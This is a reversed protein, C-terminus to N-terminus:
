QASEELEILQDLIALKTLLSLCSSYYGEARNLSAMQTMELLRQRRTSQSFLIVSQMGPSVFFESDPINPVLSVQAPIKGLQQFSGWFDTVPTLLSNRRNWWAINLPVRIADFGFYPPFDPALSVGGDGVLVWDAPLGAHSFRAEEFLRVSDRLLRAWPSNLRKDVRAFDEFAPFVYYSLNVVVGYDHVFGSEGPLLVLGYPTNILCKQELDSLIDAAKRAYEPEEWLRTARLLAWAILIDGDSANNLDNVEGGLPTPTWRWAFLHDERVQLNQESWHLLREFTERDQYAVALLMGYGMSESHTIDGNDRDVIRGRESMFQSLFVVWDRPPLRVIKGLNEYELMSPPLPELGAEKQLTGGEVPIASPQGLALLTVSSYVTLLVGLRMM